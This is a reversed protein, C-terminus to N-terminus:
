TTLLKFAPRSHTSWQNVALLSDKFIILDFYITIAFLFVGSVKFILILFLLKVLAVSNFNKPTWM